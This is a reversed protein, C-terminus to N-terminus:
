KGIKKIRGQHFLYQNAYGSLGGWQREAFRHIQKVSRKRGNFYATEVVRKIWVDVPFADLKKYGFLLICDAVKDGIGYLGTLREKAKDYDLDGIEDLDVRSTCEQAVKRIYKDRFGTGCSRIWALPANALTEPRPFSRVTEDGMEMEDGFRETLRGIIGRIRKINNFQSIVFCLTAEWPDNETIRLGRLEDIAAEMHRDTDIRKYIKEMDDRLGFRRIMEHKISSETYGGEYSYSLHSREGSGLAMATVRGKNTSYTLLERGDKVRYDAYFNLPQGSMATLGLSFDKVVIM